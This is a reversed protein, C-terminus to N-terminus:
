MMPRSIDVAYTALEGREGGAIFFLDSGACAFVVSAVPSRREWRRIERGTRFDWLKVMCNRTGEGIKSAGNGTTLYLGDRSVDAANYDQFTDSSEFRRVVQGTALNWQICDDAGATILFAGDPSFRVSRVENEHSVSRLETRKEVDWIRITFLDDPVPDQQEFITLGDATYIYGPYAASGSALFRGNPSFALSLTPRRYIGWHEIETGTQLNCVGVQFEDGSGSSPVSGSLAILRSDPSLTLSAITTFNHRLESLKEGSDGKWLQVRNDVVWTDRYVRDGTTVLFRGDRSWDVASVGFPHGKLRGVVKLEPAKFLLAETDGAGVAGALFQPGDPSAALAAICGRFNRKGFIM